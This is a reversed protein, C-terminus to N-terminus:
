GPRPLGRGGRPGATMPRLVVAPEVGGRDATGARTEAAAFLPLPRDRLARIAWVAERRGARALRFADAEALRELAAIPVGARRWLEEISAFPQTPRPRRRDRRRGHQRARAGPAPRAARRHREGDSRSWRATGARPTSTSRACRSATSRARRARAAGARLVGDAAREPARRLFVDPHHCKMWSSAYAICRSPPRTARRSATAASAKSSRSPAARRVGAHLRQAVMGAVLKDRFQSVGGTLKFTAMARRLQDAEGPTFGACEIAVRM